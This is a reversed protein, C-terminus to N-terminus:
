VMKLGPEMVVRTVLATIHGERYERDKAITVRERERRRTEVGGEGRVMGHTRM